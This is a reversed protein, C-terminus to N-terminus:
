TLRNKVREVLDMKEHLVAIVLLPNDARELAFIYHKQCHLLRLSKGEVNLIRGSYSTSALKNLCAKLQEKYKLMQRKGFNKITYDLISQLDFAADPSFKYTNM